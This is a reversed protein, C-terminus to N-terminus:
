SQQAKIENKQQKKLVIKSIFISIEYLILVPIAVIIQSAIDPPTIIASVILIGVLAFKRYSRLTEPTVLGIKTLIYILIPLEFILGSALVSARILGFYSSLDIDNFVEKSVQYSGLFNISLPSVIYYGFLVGIFFLISAVLIFGRSAKREKSHLGPAIFKWLEYIIYPFAIIFGATIATWMHASFQGAMTRSQIRFPIETFCFSEDLGISKSVNCLIRYTIFNPDKPGFLIVDFIFSKALFAVGSIIIIAIISRILHWRLTELHDLFSMEQPNAKTKKPM